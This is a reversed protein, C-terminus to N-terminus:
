LCDEERIFIDAPKHDPNVISQMERLITENAAALVTSPRNSRCSLPDGCFDATVGGAEEIIVKGAAYDWPMLYRQFLAGYRGRAVDALSLAASGGLRIDESKDFIERFCDFTWATRQRHNSSTGVVVMSHALDPADTVHIPKGNLFAGGGRVASFVEDTYPNYIVGLLGEGNEYLGLSVASARLDHVLNATGDVPDLIWVRGSFDIDDNDKEEGMFQVDPYARRLTEQLYAQVHFDVETVYDVPGKMHVDRQMQEDFFYRRAATVIEIIRPLSVERQETM